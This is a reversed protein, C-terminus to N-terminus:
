SRWGPARKALFANLGEQGEPSARLAAILEATHANLAARNGSHAVKDILQKVARQAAPGGQLLQALVGDVAADLAEPAVVEHVLGIACARQADFAEGTAFLRRAQRAGIADIVYPSIVAPVLGLRVETFAFRATNAAIAIDCCAVLGVGGGYAAGNVRAVTVLPLANLAEMLAALALADARNEADGQAAAARMWNLDAGASFASGAGTLVVARVQADQALRALATMLEGILVDDFANHKDARDLTLRAVGRPDLECRIRAAASV